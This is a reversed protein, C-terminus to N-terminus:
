VGLTALPLKLKWNLPINTTGGPLLTEGEPVLVELGTSSLTLTVPVSLLFKGLPDGHLITLSVIRKKWGTIGPGLINSAIEFCISGEASGQEM